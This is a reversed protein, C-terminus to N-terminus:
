EDFDVTSAVMRVVDLNEQLMKIRAEVRGLCEKGLPLRLYKGRDEPWGEGEGNISEVIRHATCEPDQAQKGQSGRLMKVVYEAATDKYPQSVPAVATNSDDLFNTRMAGPEVILVRIGFPALEGALSESLDELTHKSAGYVGIAPASSFGETIAVNIISGSSRQRMHPILAKITRVCGFFSVDFQRQIELM